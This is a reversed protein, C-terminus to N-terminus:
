KGIDLVIFLTNINKSGPRIEKINIFKTDDSMTLM